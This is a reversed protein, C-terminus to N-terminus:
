EDRLRWGVLVNSELRGSVRMRRQVEVGRLRLGSYLESASVNRRLGRGGRSEHMGQEDGFEWSYWREFVVRGPTRAGEEPVLCVRVFEGLSDQGAIVTRSDGTIRSCLSAWFGAKSEADVYEQAGAVLKAFLWRNGEPTALRELLGEDQMEVPVDLDFPVCVERRMMGRGGTSFMPLSNTVFVLTGNVRYEAEGRYIANLVVNADGTLRKVLDDNLVGGGAESVVLLRRHVHSALSTERQSSSNVFLERASVRGALEGLVRMVWEILVGKGNGGSGHFVFFKQSPNGLLLCYGIIKFVDRVWDPDGCSIEAFFKEGEPFSAPADAFSTAARSRVFLSPGYPVKSVCGDEGFEVVCDAAPIGMVQDFPSVSRVRFDTVRSLLDSKMDRVPGTYGSADVLRQIESEVTRANEAYLGTEADYVFLKGGVTVPRFLECLYQSFSLSRVRCRGLDDAYFIDARLEGLRLTNKPLALPDSEVICVEASSEAPCIPGAFSALDVDQYESNINM